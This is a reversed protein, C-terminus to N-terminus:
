SVQATRSWTKSSFVCIQRNKVSNLARQLLPWSRTSCAIEGVFSTTESRPSFLQQDASFGDFSTRFPAYAPFVYVNKRASFVSCKGIFFLEFFVGFGDLFTPQFFLTCKSRLRTVFIAGGARLHFDFTSSTHDIGLAQLYLPKSVNFFCSFM